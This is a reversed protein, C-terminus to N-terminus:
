KRSYVFLPDCGMQENLYARNAELNDIVEFETNDIIRILGLYECDSKQAPIQLGINYWYRDTQNSNPLYLKGIAEIRDLFIPESPATFLFTFRHLGLEEDADAKGHNFVLYGDYTCILCDALYKLTHPGPYEIEVAIIRGNEPRPDGKKYRPVSNCSGILTTILLISLFSVIITRFRSM